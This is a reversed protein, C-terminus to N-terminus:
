VKMKKNGTVTGLDSGRIFLLGDVGRTRGIRVKGGHHGELVALSEVGHESSQMRPAHRYAHHCIQIVSIIWKISSSDAYGLRDVGQHFRTFANERREAHGLSRDLYATQNHWSNPKIFARRTKNGIIRFM